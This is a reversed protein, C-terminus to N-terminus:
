KESLMKELRELRAKLDQNEKELKNLRAQSGEDVSALSRQVSQVQSECRMEAQIREQHEQKLAELLIATINGYQVSKYGSVKDTKVLEPYIKEFRASRVLGM